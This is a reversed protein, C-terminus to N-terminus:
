PVIRYVKIDGIFKQFTGYYKKHLVLEPMFNRVPYEEVLELNPHRNELIRRYLRVEHPRTKVLKQPDGVLPGNLEHPLAIDYWNEHMVLYQGLLMKQEADLAYEPQFLIPPPQLGPPPSAYFTFFIRSNPNQQYWDVIERRPDQHFDMEFDVLLLAPWAFFLAMLLRNRAIRLSWWGYAALLAAAPILPLYHRYTTRPAIFLMYAAYVLVPLFCLWLRANKKDKLMYALGRPILLAAPLGLGVILVVPFNLLNRPIKNWGVAGFGSGFRSSMAGSTFAKIYPQDIHAIGIVVWPIALFVPITWPNLRRWPVFLYFLLLWPYLGQAQFASNFGLAATVLAAVTVIVVHRYNTNGMFWRWSRYPLFALYAFLPMPWIHKSFVAPIMLVLSTAVKIVSPRSVALVMALLFAFLYFTMEADVTAMHSQTAHFGSLALLLSATWAVEPRDPTLVLAIMGILVVTLAGMVASFPRAVRMHAASLCYNKALGYNGYAAAPPPDGLLSTITVTQAGVIPSYTDTDLWARCTNAEDFNVPTFSDPGFWHWGVTNASYLRPLLAVLFLLGLIAIRKTSLWHPPAKAEPM